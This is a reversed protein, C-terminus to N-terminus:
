RAEGDGVEVSRPALEHLFSQIRKKLEEGPAMVAVLKNESLYFPLSRIAVEDAPDRSIILPRIGLANAYGLEYMVNFNLGTADVIVARSDELHSAFLDFIRGAHDDRDIRHPHFGASRVAPVIDHDYFHDHSGGYPMLILCRWQQAANIVVSAVDTALQNREEDSGVQTGPGLRHVLDGSLRFREVIEPTYERWFWESDQGTFGLPLAPKDVAYALELVTRTNGQGSITVLADIGLVLRFRRAQHSWGELRRVTGAEFRRVRYREKHPDPLCTKFRRNFEEKDPVSALAADRVCVDVSINEPRDLFVEFGGSVLVVGPDKLLERTLVKVFAQLDETLDTSGYVAIRPRSM